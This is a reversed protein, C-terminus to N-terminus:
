NRLPGSSEAPVARAPTGPASEPEDEMPTALGDAIERLYAWPYIARDHGDSFAINVGMAGVAELGTIALGAAPDAATGDLRARLSAADRARARLVPAPITDTRDPWAIALASWDETVAIRDPRM